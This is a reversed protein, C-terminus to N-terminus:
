AARRLEDAPAGLLSRFTESEFLSRRSALGEGLGLEAFIARAEPELSGRRSAVGRGLRARLEEYAEPTDFIRKVVLQPSVTGNWRNAGLRFVVDHRGATRFRDLLGGQGFAIAGSRVGGATVAGAAPAQRGRGRGLESLECAPALLTVGPNGLGFPALRELEECLDLTLEDGRVVADVQVVPRLRGDDLATGAHAAFADAFSSLREPGSRSAPPPAIAASASSSAPARPRARAHLDFAPDIPRLGEM